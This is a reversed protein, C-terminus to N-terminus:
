RRRFVTVAGTIAAVSSLGIILYLANQLKEAKANAVDLVASAGSVVDDLAWAQASKGFAFPIHVTM